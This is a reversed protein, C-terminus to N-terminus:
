RVDPLGAVYKMMEDLEKVTALFGSKHRFIFGPVEEIDTPVVAVATDRSQLQWGNAHPMVVFLHEEKDKWISSYEDFVAVNNPLVRRKDYEATAKAKGVASVMENTLITVAFNVAKEFMYDQTASDKPERNFKGIISSTNRFGHPLQRWTAHINNRNTDMADISDIFEQFFPQAEPECLVDKWHRWVLGAASPLSLDQHHDYNNKAPDYEGGVDLVITDPDAIALALKEPNRTRTVNLGGDHFVLQLM